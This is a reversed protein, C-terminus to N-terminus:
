YRKEVFDSLTLIITNEFQKLVLLDKDGTILFDANSDKSLALLFNDKIDRCVAVKSFVPFTKVIQPFLELFTAIASSQIYKALKPYQIATKVEEILETSTCIEVDDRLLVDSLQSKAPNIVFSIWWNTDIVVKIM